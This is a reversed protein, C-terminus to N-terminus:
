KIICKSTASICKGNCDVMNRNPPCICRKNICRKGGSCPPNCVMSDACKFCPVGKYIVRTPSKCDKPLLATRGIELCRRNMMNVKALSRNEQPSIAHAAAVLSCSVIVFVTLYVIKKM